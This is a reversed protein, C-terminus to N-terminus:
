LCRKRDWHRGRRRDLKDRRPLVVAVVNVASRSQSELPSWLKRRVGAWYRKVWHWGFHAGQMAGLEVLKQQLGRCKTLVPPRNQSVLSKDTATVSVNALDVIEFIGTGNSAALTLPDGDSDVADVAYPLTVRKM